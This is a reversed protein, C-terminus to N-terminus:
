VFLRFIANRYLRFDLFEAPRYYNCSRSERGYRLLHHHYHHHSLMKCLTNDKLFLCLNSM